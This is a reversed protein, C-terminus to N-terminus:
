AYRLPIAISVEFGESQRIEFTHNMGYLRELREETNRLGIGKQMGAPGAETGDDQVSLMLHSNKKRARITITRKATAPEVAYKIANEVLPQLIMAPLMANVVSKDIDFSTSLKEEFRIKQIGLYLEVLHIERHLPIEQEHGDRLAFRM